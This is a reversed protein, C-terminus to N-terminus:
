AETVVNTMRYRGAKGFEKALKGIRCLTAPITAELRRIRQTVAVICGRTWGMERERGCDEFFSRALHLFVNVYGAYAQSSFQSAHHVSRCLSAAHDCAALEVEEFTHKSQVGPFHLLLRLMTCEGVLLAFWSSATPVFQRPGDAFVWYTQFPDSSSIFCHEEIDYNFTTADGVTIKQLGGQNDLYALLPLRFNDLEDLLQTLEQPRIPAHSAMLDDARQLLRGLPPLMWWVGPAAGGKLNRGTRSRWEQRDFLCGQRRAFSLLTASLRLNMFLKAEFYHDLDMCTPGRAEVYQLAGWFHTDWAATARQEPPICEDNLSLLLICAIISRDDKLHVLHPEQSQTGYHALCLSYVAHSILPPSMDITTLHELLCGERHM